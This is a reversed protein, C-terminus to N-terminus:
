RALHILVSISLSVLTPRTVLGRITTHDTQTAILLLIKLELIHSSLPHYLGREGSLRTLKPAIGSELAASSSASCWNTM